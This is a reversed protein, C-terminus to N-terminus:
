RVARGRGGRGPAAVVANSTFTAAVAAPGKEVVVLGLDPRGSPKIGASIAGARFGAPMTARAEVAPLKAPLAVLEDAPAASSFIPATGPTPKM